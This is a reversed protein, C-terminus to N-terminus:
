SASQKYRALREIQEISRPHRRFRVAIDSPSAGDERWKLVRRELPRLRSKAPGMGRRPVQALDRVRQVFGPTKRFRRAIEDDSEGQEALRVMRREIPTFGTDAM